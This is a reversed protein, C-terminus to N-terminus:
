ALVAKLGRQEVRLRNAQLHFRYKIGIAYVEISLFHLYLRCQFDDAHM